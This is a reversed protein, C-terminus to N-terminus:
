LNFSSTSLFRVQQPSISFLPGLYFGTSLLYCPPTMLILIRRVPCLPESFRFCFNEATPPQETLRIQVVFINQCQKKNLNQRTKLPFLFAFFFVFYFVCLSFESQVYLSNLFLFTNKKQTLSKTNLHSCNQSKWSNEEDNKLM